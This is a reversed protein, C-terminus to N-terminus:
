RIYPKCIHEGIGCTAKDSQLNDEKSHQLKKTQRKNWKDIEAKTAQTKLTMDM